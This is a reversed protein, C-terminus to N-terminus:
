QNKERLLIRKLNKYDKFIAPNIDIEFADFYQTLSCKSMPKIILEDGQVTIVVEKSEKLMLKRWRSPLAVRGQMDVNKVEISMGWIGYYDGNNLAM